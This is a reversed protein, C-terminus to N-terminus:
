ELAKPRRILAGLEDRSTVGTKAMARYIHSEVTRVSLTLREAVARNSLGEGILMVIERERDTLPLRETAQRLAPTDAGGCQQALVDARNSCGLASGRLNQRRYAVAAHAAADIAAILDGMREFEDSVAALEPGDGAHLADAFRAALGARPGEVIAQLERLRPGTTHEGFQTAVQLCMVEPAFQGNARATEAASLLTTIGETIAGECAAVWARAMGYEYDLFRWSPHRQEELAALAAAADVTSGRMALAIVSPLRCRYAWGNSEGSATLVEVVPGLFSCATDLHGAGLAARGAVASRLEVAGPVDAVRADLWEARRRADAIRGALVLAGVHADAIAVFSRVGIPYGAEAAAEAETLRGADGNAVTRAWSTVRAAVDPLQDWVVSRSAESAADPQGMAASYVTRFADVCSRAQQPATQSAEDILAKAGAPDGLTFLRNTARLFFLRGFEADTLDRAPIDALVADAEQGRSLWSLAYARIFHAEAAGGARTAAKAIRDALPLDMLWMAGQAASVLLEADPELDSDLSLTARRVVVRLDDRDDSAALEAAVLGRLRRLRTSAARKRRVEGYLPHALRVESRGEVYNLTILGRAEAEEVAAPDAIRTLSALDIPEGVALVDLVASVPAPLAGMRAEILEVLGPAMVPDGNWRWLGSQQALRRDSIEQEVINRLYLANGRSLKWLRHAADPDVSGDLTMLLLATTEEQSLPQLDLREFEGAKWVEQIGGPVQEGDRITLVVKATQRSVIQHLVFTSLEDLLHVDDVGVVVAAGSAATTLSDIVGRVLQLNDSATSPAWSAFAGLPLARASSTAVAWRVECRKSAASSLAERVLRSKGVGATGCVVIGALNPASLAAEVIHMEQSRGTLPWADSDRLRIIPSTPATVAMTAEDDAEQVELADQAV